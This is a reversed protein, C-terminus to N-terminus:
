IQGEERIDATDSRDDKPKDCVQKVLEAIAQREHQGCEKGRRGHKTQGRSVLDDLQPIFEVEAALADPTFVVGGRVKLPVEAAYDGSCHKGTDHQPRKLGDM